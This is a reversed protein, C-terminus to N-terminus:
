HKRNVPKCIPTGDAEFGIVKLDEGQDTTFEDGIELDMYEYDEMDTKNIFWTEEGTGAGQAM